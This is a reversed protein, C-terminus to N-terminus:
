SDKCKQHIRVMFTVWAGYSLESVLLGSDGLKNYQMPMDRSSESPPERRAPRSAAARLWVAIYPTPLAGASVAAAAFAPERVHVPRRKTSQVDPSDNLPNKPVVRNLTVRSCPAM